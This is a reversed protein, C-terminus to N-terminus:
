LNSPSALVGQQEIAICAGHEEQTFYKDIKIQMFERRIRGGLFVASRAGRAYVDTWRPGNHRRILQICPPADGVEGNFMRAGNVDRESGEHAVSYIATIITLQNARPIFKRFWRRQCIKLASLNQGMLGKQLEESPALSIKQVVCLATGNSSDAMLLPESVQGNRKAVAQGFRVVWCVLCLHSTCQLHSEFVGTVQDFFMHSPGKFLGSAKVM